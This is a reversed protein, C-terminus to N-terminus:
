KQEEGAISETLSDIDAHMSGVADKFHHRTVKLSDGRYDIADIKLKILGINKKHQQQLAEKEPPLSAILHQYELFRSQLKTVNALTCNSPLNKKLSELRELIDKMVMTICYYHRVYNRTYM